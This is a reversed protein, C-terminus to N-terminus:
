DEKHVRLILYLTDSEPSSKSVILTGSWEAGSAEKFSWNSWSLGDGNGNNKMEWGAVTLQDNYVEITKAESLNSQITTTTEGETDTGGGGGFSLLVAGNPAHLTPILSMYYPQMYSDSDCMYSGADIDLSLRIMTETESLKPTEVQLATSNDETCYGSILNSQYGFGGQFPIKHWGNEILTSAYFEQISKASQNTDLILSYERIDGTVSGVIHADNPVPLDYPANEPLAEIYVTIKQSSNAPYIPNLWQSIFNRLAVEDGGIADITEFTKEEAMRTPTATPEILLTATSTLEQPKTNATACAVLALPLMAIIISFKKM